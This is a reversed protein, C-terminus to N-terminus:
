HKIPRKISVKKTDSGVNYGKWVEEVADTFSRFYYAYDNPMPMNKDDRVEAYTPRRGLEKTKALLANYLGQKKGTDKAFM